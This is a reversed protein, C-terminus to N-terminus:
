KWCICLSKDRRTRWDSGPEVVQWAFGPPLSLAGSVFEDGRGVSLRLVPNGVGYPLVMRLIFGADMVNTNGFAHHGREQVSGSTDTIATVSMSDGLAYFRQASDGFTDRLVLDDVSQLGWIFQRDAASGTDVREELVQWRISYYYHRTESSTVKIVRRNLGDYAYVGVMTEGDMALVPRNWADWTLQYASSWDAPQPTTNMNGTPDYGVLASSDSVSTTENVM